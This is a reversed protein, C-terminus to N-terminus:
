PDLMAGVYEGLSGASVRPLFPLKLRGLVPLPLPALRRLAGALAKFRATEEPREARIVSAAAATAVFEAGALLQNGWVHDGDSHTNIVTTTPVAIRERVAALMRATLRVDWLTDILAAGDEGVVLGANSEGWGGNPQIWAYTDPAVEQLGGAYRARHGLLTRDM